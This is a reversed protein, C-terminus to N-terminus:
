VDFVENDLNHEDDLYFGGASPGGTVNVSSPGPRYWDVTVWAPLLPDCVRVVRGAAEYFEGETWGTPVQMKVLVHCVSSHWPVSGVAGYPYAGSPVLISANAVTIYEVAVFASGIESTLAAAIRGDVTAQGFRALHTAVRQRRTTNTDTYKPYIALLREWRVLLEMPCRLPQWAKSVRENAGWSGAVARAVAVTEAYVVTQTNTADFATGRDAALGEFIVKATPRGGGFRRPHPNLGGFKGM